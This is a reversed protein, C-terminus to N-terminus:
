FLLFTFQIWNLERIFHKSDFVVSVGILCETNETLKYVCWDWDIKKQQKPNVEYIENFPEVFPFFSVTGVYWECPISDIALTVSIPIAIAQQCALCELQVCNIECLNYHTAVYLTYFKQSSENLRFERGIECHYYYFLLVACHPEKPYKELSQRFIYIFM